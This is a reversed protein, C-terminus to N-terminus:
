GSFATGIVPIGALLSMAAGPLGAGAGGTALGLSAIPGTLGAGAVIPAAALAGGFAGVAALPPALKVKKKVFKAAVFPSAKIAKKLKKKKLKKAAKFAKLQFVDYGPFVPSRKARNGAMIDADQEPEEILVELDQGGEGDFIQNRRAAYSGERIPEASSVAAAVVLAVCFLALTARLMGIRGEKRAFAALSVAGM